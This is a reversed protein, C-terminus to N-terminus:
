IQIHLIGSKHRAAAEALMKEAEESSHWSHKSYTIATERAELELELHMQKGVAM